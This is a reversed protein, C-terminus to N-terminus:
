SKTPGNQIWSKGPFTNSGAGYGNTYNQFGYLSNAMCFRLMSNFEPEAACTYVVDAAKMGVYRAWFADLQQQTYM